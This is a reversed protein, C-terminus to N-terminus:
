IFVIDGGDYPNTWSVIITDYPQAELTDNGAVKNQVAFDYSDEYIRAYNLDSGTITDLSLTDIDGEEDTVTAQPDAINVSSGSGADLLFVFPSAADGIATNRAGALGSNEAHQLLRLRSRAAKPIRITSPISRFSNSM